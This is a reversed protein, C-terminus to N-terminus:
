CTGSLVYGLGSEQLVTVYGLNYCECYCLDVALWITVYGLSVVVWVYIYTRVRSFTHTRTCMEDYM